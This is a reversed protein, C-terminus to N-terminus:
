LKHPDAGDFTNPEWVKVKEPRSETCPQRMTCIGAALDSMVQLFRERPKNDEPSKDNPEKGDGGDEPDPDPLDQPNEQNDKIYDLLTPERDDLVNETEESVKHSTRPTQAKYTSISEAGSGVPRFTTVIHASTSFTTTTHPIPNISSRPEASLRAHQSNKTTCTQTQTKQTQTVM